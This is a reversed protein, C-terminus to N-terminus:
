HPVEAWAQERLVDEGHLINVQVLSSQLLQLALTSV